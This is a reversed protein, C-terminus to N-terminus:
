ERLEAFEDGREEHPDRPLHDAARPVAITQFQEGAQPHPTPEGVPHKATQWQTVEFQLLRDTNRLSTLLVSMPNPPVAASFPSVKTVVSTSARPSPCSPKPM